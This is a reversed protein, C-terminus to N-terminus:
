MVDENPRQNKLLPLPASVPLLQAATCDSSLGAILVASLVICYKMEVHGVATSSDGPDIVDMTATQEGHLTAAWLWLRSWNFM